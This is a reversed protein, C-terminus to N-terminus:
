NPPLMIPPLSLSKFGSQRKKETLSWAFWDGQVHGWNGRKYHPYWQQGSHLYTRNKITILDSVTYCLGKRTWSSSEPGYVYGFVSLTSSPGSPHICCSGTESMNGASRQLHRHRHICGDGRCDGVPDPSSLCATLEYWWWRSSRTRARSGIEYSPFSGWAIVDKRRRRCYQNEEWQPSGEM